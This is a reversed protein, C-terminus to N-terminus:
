GEPIFVARGDVSAVRIRTGFVRSLTEETLVDAPTGHAAIRGMSMLVVRDAHRTSLDLEHSVALVTLGRERNWRGLFRYLELQHRVDLHSAPEDLLLIRPTQALARALYVRQREGGSLEAVYRDALETVGVEEMAAAAAALDESSDFPWLGQYGYRGMMVTDFVTSAVRVPEDQALFALAKARAKSPLTSLPLSGLRVTGSLPPLLGGMLRLLTSKGSGNPGLVVTFSGPTLELDIGDVAREGSFYAFALGEAVVHPPPEYVM